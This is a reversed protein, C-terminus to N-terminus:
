SPQPRQSRYRVYYVSFDADTGLSDASWTQGVSLEMRADDPSTSEASSFSDRCINAAGSSHDLKPAPHAANGAGPVHHRGRYLRVVIPRTPGGGPINLSERRRALRRLPAPDSGYSIGM